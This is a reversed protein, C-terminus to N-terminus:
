GGPCRLLKWGLARVPEAYDVDGIHTSDRDRGPCTHIGICQREEPSFRALSLNNLGIFNQLLAGSPDIKVALRGETFDIQVKYAGKELCRRDEKEHEHLLDKIFQDRAYGPIETTRYLLSLASPSIVAQKMPVRAHRFAADLYAPRMYRLPGAVLRPM